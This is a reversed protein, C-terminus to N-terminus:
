GPFVSHYKCLLDHLLIFYEQTEGLLHPVAGVCSGKEM